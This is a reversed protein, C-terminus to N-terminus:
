TSPKSLGLKDSTMTVPNVMSFAFKQADEDGGSRINRDEAVDDVAVISAQLGRDGCAGALRGELGAFAIVAAFSNMQDAYDM